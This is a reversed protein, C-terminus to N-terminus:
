QILAEELSKLAVDLGVSRRHRFCVAITKAVGFVKVPVSEIRVTQVGDALIADTFRGFRMTPQAIKPMWAKTGIAEPSVLVVVSVVLVDGGYRNTLHSSHFSHPVYVHRLDSRSLYKLAQPLPVWRTTTRNNEQVRM